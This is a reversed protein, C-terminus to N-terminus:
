VPVIQTSLDRGDVEILGYTVPGFRPFSLSGPNFLLLGNEDECFPMHTHGFLAARAGAKQAAAALTHMTRKVDHLHGHTLFFTVDEVRLMRVTEGGAAMDCNGQVTIPAPSGPPLSLARIDRSFDGLHIILGAPRNEVVSRMCGLHGHTDSFLLIRTL